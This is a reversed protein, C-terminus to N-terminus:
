VENQPGANPLVSEYDFLTINMYNFHRSFKLFFDSFWLIYHGVNPGLDSLLSRKAIFTFVSINVFLSLGLQQLYM